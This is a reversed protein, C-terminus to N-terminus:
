RKLEVVLIQMDRDGTNKGGHTFAAHWMAEGKPVSIDRTSGDPLACTSMIDTLAYAVMDPHHHLGM